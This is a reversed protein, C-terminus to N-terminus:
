LITKARIRRELHKSLLELCYCIVFFFLAVLIYVTIPRYVVQMIQRAYNLLEMVGIASILTTDKILIVYQGVLSPIITLWVQPMIVHIMKSVVSLGISDAGEHQGKPIAAIGARIIEAIYAGHYVSLVVVATIIPNIFSGSFFVLLLLTLPPIGRMILIYLSIIHKLVPINIFGIIGILCGIILSFLVSLPIVKLLALLGESLFKIITIIDSIM